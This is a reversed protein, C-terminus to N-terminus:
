VASAQSAADIWGKIIAEEKARVATVEATDEPHPGRLDYHHAGKELLFVPLSPDASQRLFGGGHWPDLLGNSFIINSAGSLGDGISYGGFHLEVWDPDPQARFYQACAASVDAEDFAFSRV